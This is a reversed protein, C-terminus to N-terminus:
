RDDPEDDNISLAYTGNPYRRLILWKGTVDWDIIHTGLTGLHLLATYNAQGAERNAAYTIPLRLVGLEKGLFQVNFPVIVEEREEGTRTEQAQWEENGFFEYRFYTQPNIAHRAGVLTISGRQNGTRKRQADSRTLKKSWQMSRSRGKAAMGSQPHTDGLERTALAILNQDQLFKAITHRLHLRDRHIGFERRLVLYLKRRGGVHVHGDERLFAFFAAQGVTRVGLNDYFRVRGVVSESVPDFDVIRENHSLRQYWFSNSRQTRFIPTAFCPGNRQMPAVGAAVYSIRM